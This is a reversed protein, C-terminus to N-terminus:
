GSKADKKFRFTLLKLRVNYVIIDSDQSITSTQNKFLCLNREQWLFYTTAAILLRAVIRVTTGKTALPKIWDVIDDWALGVGDMDAKVRVM